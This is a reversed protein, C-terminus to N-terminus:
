LALDVRIPTHDSAKDRGRMAKDIAVSRLRDAAQSSLLLHDIGGVAAQGAMVEIDTFEAVISRLVRGRFTVIQRGDEVSIAPRWHEPVASTMMEGIIVHCHADVIM